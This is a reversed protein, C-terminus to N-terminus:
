LAGWLNRRYQVAEALHEEEIEASLALDAISRAVDLIRDVGRASSRDFALIQRLFKRVSPTL